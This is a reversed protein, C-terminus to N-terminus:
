GEVLILFSGRRIIALFPPYLNFINISIYRNFFIKPRVMKKEGSNIERLFWKKECNERLFIDMVKGWLLFFDCTGGFILLVHLHLFTFLHDCPFDIYVLDCIM